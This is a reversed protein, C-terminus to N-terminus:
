CESIGGDKQISWLIQSSKGGGRGYYRGALRSAGTPRLNERLSLQVEIRIISYANKEERIKKVWV